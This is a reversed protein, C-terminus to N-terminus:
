ILFKKKGKQRSLTVESIGLYSALYKSTVRLILEPNNQMLWKYREAPPQMRMGHLQQAWRIYYKETLVRGIFNFEPFNRYIYQIEPYNIYHLTCDELAQISEYSEKQGFFSEISIIVDGEKMFSSSVETEERIHYFCRLLGKEVFCINRCVHGAKLLYDKKSIKKLKIVTALHAKLSDSLIGISEFCQFTNEM